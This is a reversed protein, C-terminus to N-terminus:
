HREDTERILKICDKLLTEDKIGPSLEVGSNLDIGAPDTKKLAEKLNSSNLGGALFFPKNLNKEILNWNFSSGTGGYSKDSYSDLLMMSASSYKRFLDRLNLGEKVRIAKIFNEKLSECYAPDEEGHFQPIADPIEELCEKVFGKDENVFVLIIKFPFTIKKILNSTADLNIYRKSESYLNFGLTDAGLQLSKNADELSTIGCIKIKRKM